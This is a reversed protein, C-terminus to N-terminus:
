KREEKMFERFKARAGSQFSSVAFNTITRNITSLSGKLAPEPLLRMPPPLNGSTVFGIKGDVGKGDKSPYLEGVVDILIGLSDASVGVGPLIQINPDFAVSEINFSGKEDDTYMNVDVHPALQITVFMLTMLKLRYVKPELKTILKEDWISMAIQEDASLWKRVTSIDAGDLTTQIRSSSGFSIDGNMRNLEFYEGNRSLIADREKSTWSKRKNSSSRAAFLKSSKLLPRPPHSSTKPHYSTFAVVESSAAIVLLLALVLHVVEHHAMKMTDGERGNVTASPAHQWHKWAFPLLHLLPNISGRTLM